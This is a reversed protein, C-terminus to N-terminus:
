NRLQRRHSCKKMESAFLPGWRAKSVYEGVMMPLKPKGASEALARAETPRKM